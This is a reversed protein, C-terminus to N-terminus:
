ACMRLIQDDAALKDDLCKKRAAWSAKQRRMEDAQSQWVYIKNSLTTWIGRSKQEIWDRMSRGKPPRLAYQIDYVLRLARVYQAPLEALMSHVDEKIAPHTKRLFNTEFSIAEIITNGCEFLIDLTKDRDEPTM